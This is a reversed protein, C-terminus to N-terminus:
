LLIIVYNLTICSLLYFISHHSLVPSCIIPNFNSLTYERLNDNKLLRKSIYLKDNKELSLARAFAYGFMQNGLGGSVDIIILVHRRLDHFYLVGCGHDGLELRSIEYSTSCNDEGVAIFLVNPYVKILNQLYNAFGSLPRFNDVLLVLQQSEMLEATMKRNTGLYSRLLNYIDYSDDIKHEEEKADLFLPIKNYSTYNMLLELQIRRLLSTKGCKDKGLVIVSNGCSYLDEMSIPASISTSMADEKSRKILPTNYSALFDKGSDEKKLLLM